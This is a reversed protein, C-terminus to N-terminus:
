FMNEWKKESMNVLSICIGGTNGRLMNASIKCIINKLDM